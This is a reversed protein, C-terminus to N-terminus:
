DAKYNGITLNYGNNYTDYKNIWYVERKNLDKTKEVVQYIFNEAGIELMDDYMQNNTNTFLMGCGTKIHTAFRNYIDTSQGIYSKGTKINSIKYIGCIKKRYGIKSKYFNAVFTPHYYLFWLTEGANKSIKRNGDLVLKRLQKIKDQFEDPIYLRYTMTSDDSINKNHEKLIYNWKNFDDSPKFGYYKDYINEDSNLLIGM